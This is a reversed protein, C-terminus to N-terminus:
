LSQKKLTNLANMETPNKYTNIKCVINFDISIWENVRILGMMEVPPTLGFDRINLKETGKLIYLEGERNSTIPINYQKTKGTITIDISANAKSIDRNIVKPDVEFYNLKVHFTPYTDAKVLKLFDRLALKNTSNFDRVSISHENQSLVIKNQSQTANIIFNRKALKDGGQSLKFSILNTTGNITISSSKQIDVFFTLQASLTHFTFILLAIFVTGKKM